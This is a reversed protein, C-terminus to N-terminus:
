DITLSKLEELMSQHHTAPWYIRRCKPCWSFKEQTAFVYPPVNKEVAAKPRPELVLNCELCRKFAHDLPRLGCARIVQRLQERHHDSEIFLFDPPQKRKLGRDRTLILRNEARAARILGYGSLHQGYIVDQGMVRLWKALKGLMRDAAFKLEGPSTETTSNLKLM